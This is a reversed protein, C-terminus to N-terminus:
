SERPMMAKVDRSGNVDLKSAQDPNVRSDGGAPLRFLFGHFALEVEHVLLM